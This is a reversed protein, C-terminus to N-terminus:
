VKGSFECLLKEAELLSMGKERPRKIIILKAGVASAARRKEEFGGAAGSEKTIVYGCGRFHECNEESGFPGKGSIIRMFGSKECERVIEDDPLVRVACREPLGERCFLSLEKSGTAIFFTGSTKEAFDAAEAATDFYLAEECVPSPERVVRYCPTNTDICAGSINKGVDEAYPHTADFVACFGGSLIFAAIENRDKRGIEAAVYVSKPLLEAGYETAVSVVCFIKNQNCYEALLRGETTGGFILFRNM